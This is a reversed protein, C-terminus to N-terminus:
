YRGHNFPRSSSNLTEDTKNNIIDVLSLQGGFIKRLIAPVLGGAFQTKVTIGTDMSIIIGAKATISEGPNLTVFLALLSPLVIVFKTYCM